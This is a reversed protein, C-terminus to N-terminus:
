TQMYGVGGQQGGNFDPRFPLGMEQLTKVFIDSIEAVHRPNSVALPGETGHEPAAFSQNREQRVYHPLLDDWGWGIRNGGGKVAENWRAYDSPRGRMYVMANVTSGGGLVHGQPVEHVRGDLQPQPTSQHFTLYKSGKLMKVFGAPMRLLPHNNSPGAELLLVRAGHSAVLKAATVCGSAGGGVVIYDFDKMAM